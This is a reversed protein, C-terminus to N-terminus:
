DGVHCRQSTHKRQNVYRIDTVTESSSYQLRQKKKIFSRTEAQSDVTESEMLTTCIFYSQLVYKCIACM